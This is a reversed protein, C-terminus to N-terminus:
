PSLADTIEKKLSRMYNFLVPNDREMQASQEESMEPTSQHLFTGQTFISQKSLDLIQGNKSSVIDAAKQLRQQIQTFIDKM